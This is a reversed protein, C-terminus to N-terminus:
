GQKSLRHANARTRRGYPKLAAALVQDARAGGAATRLAAGVSERVADGKEAVMRFNEAHGHPRLGMMGATRMAIVYQSEVVMRMVDGWLRMADFPNIIQGTM